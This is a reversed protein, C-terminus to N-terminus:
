RKTENDGYPVITEGDSGLLPLSFTTDYGFLRPEKPTPDDCFIWRLAGNELIKAM